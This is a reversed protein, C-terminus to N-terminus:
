KLDGRSIKAITDKAVGTKEVIDVYSVGADLLNSVQAIKEDSLKGM